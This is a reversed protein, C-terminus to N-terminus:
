RRKKFPKKLIIDTLRKRQAEAHKLKCAKNKELHNPIDGTRKQCYPCKM